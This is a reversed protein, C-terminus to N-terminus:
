VLRRQGELQSLNQQYKITLTNLGEVTPEYQKQADDVLQLYAAVGYTRIYWARSPDPDRYETWNCKFCAGVVNRIDWRLSKYKRRIFHFCCQIAPGEAKSNKKTIKLPILPGRNCLPCKGGYVWITQARVFNSLARDCAKMAQILSSKKRRKKM